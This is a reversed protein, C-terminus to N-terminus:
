FGRSISFHFKGEKGEEGPETNLPWGYDISIPGIPTKVRLGMGVSSKLGGSLFDSKKKWVNGTDFFVALKLFDVLACTHELNTVFMAEGGLPDETVSDIPGVKRENYGRITYTGGAFFRKYIPIKETDKFTDALGIRIKTEFVSKETLPLYFSLRTYYKLFDRDGGFLGGTIQFNNVFYIGKSPSFINDRTDFSLIFEGSSYDFRGEEDKLEQTATEIIDRIEVREFRYAFGGKLNDTFERMFRLAGGKINQEYGYGIDEERKHSKKYADFGFSIPRDFIWPNTFSLQYQDTLTGFSAMLSLDQGAGTFTSFNKYDFNRQRLEIFGVFENISSYGGGFSLYGTQAEKVDVVLNVKNPKSTPETFFRIEEFFGLNELRQKSKKVKEGSFREQPYIRLERRIVKDKTKVNGRINIKEVYFVENETIKYSIDIKQTRFNFIGLPQIKAFIYGRDFYLEEINFAGRRMKEETFIDGEKIPIVRRITGEDINKNGEIEIKGTYYRKGENITIKIYVGKKKFEVEKEVEVENFGNLRYFDKIREIDDDLVEERFVGRNFLWAKKTKMLSKIKKSTFSKVGEITIKRVKLVKEEKIIFKIEVEDEKLFNMEYNVQTQSFGKKFYLDRVKNTAEKVKYEDIFSGEKITEELIEMIKNKRIFYAGEIIIKKLVPKEEVCFTLILGERSRRKRVTVNKFFGTGMLSKIDENIINENYIQGVRLKIKSVIMADSVRKNGEIEIRVIEEQSYAKQIFVLIVIFFFIWKKKM